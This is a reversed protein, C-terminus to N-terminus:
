APGTWDIAKALAIEIAPFANASLMMEGYM